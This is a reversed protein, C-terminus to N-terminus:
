NKQPEPIAAEAKALAARIEEPNVQNRLATLLEPDRLVFAIRSLLHLHSSVTPSIITFLISVPKGDIAKFDIPKKLFCLTVTPESVQLVVPNRVHPVAIGNGIGTSGLAERAVLIQFLYERDTDPPLAMRTVISRLVAENTDGEIDYLVGGARLADALTPHEPSDEGTSAFMDPSVMMGRSTAWELLESKNFRYSDNIKYFPIESHDIWRYLTPVTVALLSAAEKVSIQM